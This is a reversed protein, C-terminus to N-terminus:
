NHRQCIRVFESQEPFELVFVKCAHIVCVSMEGVDIYLHKSVYQHFWRGTTVSAVLIFRQAANSRKPELNSHMVDLNTNMIVYM